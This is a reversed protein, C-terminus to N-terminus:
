KLALIYKAMAEADGVALGPHPTMPVDGWHGSGGKIIKNGLMAINAPTAPYKAAIATYAPGLLKEKERHCSACDAAALLKAGAGDASQGTPATGIHSMATDVQEQNAVAAKKMGAASDANLANLDAATSTEHPQKAAQDAADPQYGSNCAALLALAGLLPLLTKKM